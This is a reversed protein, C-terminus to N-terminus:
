PQRTRRRSRWWGWCGLVLALALLALVLLRLPQRSPAQDPLALPAMWRAVVASRDAASVAALGDDIRQLLDARERRVAFSLMYDFGVAHVADLDSLGHQRAIFALSALDVVAAAHTGQQLGRLAQVDDPVGQWRVGPQAKRIFAEVAYGSGVAVSQGQLARWLEATSQDRLPDQGRLVLVAPVSVYPRSFLLFVSREPTPRLSSLLDIELRQMSQLLDKLPKPALTQVRLNAQQAVLALMDVSLGRAQGDAEVYVFPGYDAEVGFRVDLPEQPQAVAWPAALQLLLTLLLVKTPSRAPLAAVVALGRGPAQAMPAHTM